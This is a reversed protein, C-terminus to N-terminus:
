FPCFFVTYSGQSLTVPAIVAKYQMMFFFLYIFLDWAKMGIHCDTHTTVSSCHQVNVLSKHSCCTWLIPSVSTDVRGRWLSESFVTQLWTSNGACVCRRDVANANLISHAHTHEREELQARSHPRPTSSNIMVKLVDIMLVDELSSQRRGDEM